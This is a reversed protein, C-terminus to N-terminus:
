DQVPEKKLSKGFHEAMLRAAIAHAEDTKREYFTQASEDAGIDPDNSPINKPNEMDGDYLFHITTFM